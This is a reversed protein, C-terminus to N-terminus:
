YIRYGGHKSRSRSDVLYWGGALGGALAMVMAIFLWYVPVSTKYQSMRDTLDANEKRLSEVDGQQQQMQSVKEQEGALQTRLKKVTSELGANAQELKNVRTRAPEEEVLYLSKVWGEQGGESRVHVYRGKSELLELRDGSRLKLLVPGNMAETAYMDLRLMDTVYISKAQAAAGSFLLMVLLPGRLSQAVRLFRFTYNSNM